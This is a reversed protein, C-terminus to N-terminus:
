LQIRLNTYLNVPDSNVLDAIRSSADFIKKAREGMSKEFDFIEVVFLEGNVLELMGIEVLLQIANISVIIGDYYRSNFNSFCKTKKVILQEISQANNAKRALYNLLETNTVFPMILLTKSLSLKKLHQMVFLIALSCIGLNNYLRGSM